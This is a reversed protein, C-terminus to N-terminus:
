ALYSRKVLRGLRRYEQQCADDLLAATVVRGQRWARAAARLVVNKIEGGTLEFSEAFAELDVDADVPLQSPMMGLWLALRAAADPRPYDLQFMLRRGFARDINGSLNTTLIVLGSHRDIEQLLAGTMMNRSHDNSSKAEVRAGFLTDAEDFLLVAGSMQAQAFLLQINRETEGVWKSMIGPLSVMQLPQGLSAAIAEATFTKGTGPEGSFLCAICRGTSARAALGWQGLLHPWSQHAEIIAHVDAVLTEPLVLDALSASPYLTRSLSGMDADLQMEAAREIHGHTIAAGEAWASALRSARQIASPELRFREHITALTLGPALGAAPLHQQWVARGLELRQPVRAVLGWSAELAAGLDRVRSTAVVTTPLGAARSVLARALTDDALLREGGAIVLARQHLFARDVAALVERPADATGALARADLEFAGRSAGRALQLALTRKGVGASGSLLVWTPRSAAGNVRELADLAAHLADQRDEPVTACHRAHTACPEHERLYPSSPSLGLLLEVCADTMRLPRGLSPADSTPADVLRAARVLVGEQLFNLAAVRSAPRPDDLLILPVDGCTVEDGVGGHLESLAQRVGPDVRAALLLLLLQRDVASLGFRACLADITRLPRREPAPAIAPWGEARSRELEDVDAGGWIRAAALRVSHWSWTVVDGIFAASGGDIANM